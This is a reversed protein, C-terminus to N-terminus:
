WTGELLLSFQDPAPLGNAISLSESATGEQHPWWFSHGAYRRMSEQVALALAWEHLAPTGAFTCRERSSLSIMAPVGSNGAEVWAPANELAAEFADVTAGANLTSLAAACIHAYWKALMGFAAASVPVAEHPTAVVLPYYRGVADVSPMLVGFWWQKDIVGPAWAFRWIPGTLYADLWRAGMQARSTSIGSSLWADCATILTQALRRSAFDGLM